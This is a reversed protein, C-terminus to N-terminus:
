EVIQPLEKVIESKIPKVEETIQEAEKKLIKEIKKASIKRRFLGTRYFPYELQMLGRMAKRGKRKFKYFGYIEIDLVDRKRKKLKVFNHAYSHALGEALYRTPYAIEKKKIPPNILMISVEQKKKVFLFWHFRYKFAYVEYPECHQTSGYYGVHVDQFNNLYALTITDNQLFTATDDQCKANLSFTTALFISFLVKIISKM